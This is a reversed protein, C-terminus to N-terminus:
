LALYKYFLLIAYTQVYNDELRITQLQEPLNFKKKIVAKKPTVLNTICLKRIYFNQYMLFCHINSNHM